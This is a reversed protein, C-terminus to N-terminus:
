IVRKKLYAYKGFVDFKEKLNFAAVSRGDGAARRLKLNMFRSMGTVCMQRFLM